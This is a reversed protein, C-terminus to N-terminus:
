IIDDQNLAIGNPNEKKKEKTCSRRISREWCKNVSVTQQLHPGM